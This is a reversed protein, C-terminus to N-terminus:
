KLGNSNANWTVDKTVTSLDVGTIGSLELNTCRGFANGGITELNAPLIVSTLYGCRHFCGFPIAKLNTCDSLDISELMSEATVKDNEADVVTSFAAYGIKSLSGYFKINKIRTGVFAYDGIEELLSDTVITFGKENTPAKLNPCDMFAYDHIVTINKTVNITNLSLCSAFAYEGIGDIKDDLVIKQITNVGAFAYMPISYTDKPKVVVTTLTLPIDSTYIQNANEDDKGYVAQVKSFGAVDEDEGEGFVYCFNRQADVSKKAETDSPTEGFYMDSNATKGVFPITLKQLKSMGKFAGEGIYEVTDPVVLETLTANNEFAGEAIRGITVNEGVASAIDLSTVGKGEDVYKLLTYFDENDYKRYILGKSSGSDNGGTCAFCGFACVIALISLAVVKFFRKM